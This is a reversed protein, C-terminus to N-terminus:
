HDALAKSQDNAPKNVAGLGVCTQWCWSGGDNRDQPPMAFRRWWFRYRHITTPSSWIIIVFNRHDSFIWSPHVRGPIGGGEVGGWGRYFSVKKMQTHKAPNLHIFVGKRSRFWAPNLILVIIFLFTYFLFLLPISSGWGPGWSVFLFLYFPGPSIFVNKKKCYEFSDM